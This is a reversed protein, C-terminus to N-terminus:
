DTGAINQPHNAKLHQAIKGNNKANCKKCRNKKHKRAPTAIRFYQHPHRAPETRQPKHLRHGYKAERQNGRNREASEQARGPRVPLAFLQAFAKRLPILDSQECRALETFRRIMAAYKKNLLNRRICFLRAIYKGCAGLWVFDVHHSRIAAMDLRLRIARAKDHKLIATLIFSQRTLCVEPNRFELTVANLYIGSVPHM